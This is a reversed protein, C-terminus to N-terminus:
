ALSHHLDALLAQLQEGALAAESARFSVYGRAILDAGTKIVPLYQEEVFRPAFRLLAPYRSILTQQEPLSQVRGSFPFYSLAVTYVPEPLTYALGAAQAMLIDLVECDMAPAIIQDYILFGAPRPAFEILHFMDASDLLIDAHFLGQQFGVAAFLTQLVQQLASAVAPALSVPAQYQHVIRDPLPMLKKERLFLWQLQGQEVLGDVGLECGPLLNELVFDEPLRDATSQSHASLWNEADRASMLVQVERSGSGFRPKIVCPFGLASLAQEFSEVQNVLYQRAQSIGTKQLCLNLALKDTCIDATYESVGALGFLDNLYGAQILMRGLPLPVLYDVDFTKAFATLRDRDSIPFCAAQDALAFGPSDPDSDIVLLRHGLNKVAQLFPLREYSGSLALATKLQAVM